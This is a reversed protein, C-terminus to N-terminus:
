QENNIRELEPLVSFLVNEALREMKYASYTSFLLM